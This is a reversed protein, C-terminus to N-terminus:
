PTNIGLENNINCIIKNTLETILKKEEESIGNFIITNIKKKILTVEDVVPQGKATIKIHVYRRDAADSVLEILQKTHLSEISKSVHAKSVFIFNTIDRATDYEGSHSLFYLVDIDIKKLDYEAMLRDYCKEYLRKFQQGMILFEFEGNM